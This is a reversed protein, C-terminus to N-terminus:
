PQKSSQKSQSDFLQSQHENTTHHTVMRKLFFKISKFFTGFKFLDTSTSRKLWLAYCTCMTYLMYGIEWVVYHQCCKILTSRKRGKM